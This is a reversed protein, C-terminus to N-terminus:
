IQIENPDADDQQFWYHSINFKECFASTQSRDFVLPVPIRIDIDTQEDVPQSNSKLLNIWELDYKLSLDETLRPLNVIQLFERNNGVKDLALFRTVTSESHAVVAAFKVHLHGSFWYSPALHTLIQFSYPNGLQKNAIDEQFFPKKRILQGVDGYDTIGVPWDHSIFIDVGTRLNLFKKVDEERVHYISRKQDESFPHSEYHHQKYHRQNYIGSLGGIRLGAFSVVNALGMYYINQAVWGGMCLDKMLKSSEHNGGIFLTLFPAVKVGHYYDTFSGLVRFKEPVAMSDLDNEDRIAQFDGCIILLHIQISKEMCLLTLTSYIEDLMGHGCGVVAINLFNVTQAECM